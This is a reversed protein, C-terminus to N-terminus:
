KFVFKGNEFEMFRIKELIQEKDIVEDDVKNKLFNLVKAIYHFNSVTFRAFKIKDKKLYFLRLDSAGGAGWDNRYSILKLNYYEFKKLGELFFFTCFEKEDFYIVQRVNLGWSFFLCFFAITTFLYNKTLIGVIFVIIFFASGFLYIILRIGFKARMRNNQSM